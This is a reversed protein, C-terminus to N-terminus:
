KIPTFASRRSPPRPASPSLSIPAPENESYVAERAKKELLHLDTITIPSFRSESQGGYASFLRGADTKIINLILTVSDKRHELSITSALKVRENLYNYASDLSVRLLETYSSFLQMIPVFLTASESREMSEQKMFITDFAAQCQSAISFFKEWNSLEISRELNILNFKMLSLKKSLQSQRPDAVKVELGPVMPVGPLFMRLEGQYSSKSPPASFPEQNKRSSITEFISDLNSAQLTSTM